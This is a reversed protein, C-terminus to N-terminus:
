CHIIILPATTSNQFSLPRLWDDMTQFVTTIFQSEQSNQAIPPSLTATGVFFMTACIALLNGAIYLEAFTRINKDTYRHWKAFPTDNHGSGMCGEAVVMEM